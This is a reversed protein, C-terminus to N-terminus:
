WRPSVTRSVTVLTKLGAGAPHDEAAHLADRRCTPRCHWRAVAALFALARGPGAPLMVSGRM